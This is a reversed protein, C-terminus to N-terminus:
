LYAWIFINGAVNLMSAYLWFTSYAQHRSPTVYFNVMDQPTAPRPLQQEPSLTKDEQYTLDVVRMYVQRAIDDPASLSLSTREILRDIDIRM